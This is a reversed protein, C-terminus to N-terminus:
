NMEDAQPPVGPGAHHHVMRWAGDESVFVNTAVLAGGPVREGCIVFAADGLQHVRPNVCQIPPPGGLIQEWSEMVAERGHLPTAGPHVCAVEARQAWIADMADADGRRFAAYFAENAALIEGHDHSM